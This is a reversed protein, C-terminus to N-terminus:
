RPGWPLWGADLLPKTEDEMSELWARIITREMGADIPKHPSGDPVIGDRAQFFHFRRSEIRNALRQPELRPVVIEVAGRDLAARYDPHARVADYAGPGDVLNMNLVLATAPPAFGARVDAGMLAPDDPATSFFYAAVLAVGADHMDGTLNPATRLLSVWSTDGGGMDALGGVRHKMVLGLFNRLWERTEGADTSPPQMVNEVFQALLRVGPDLAAIVVNGMQREFLQSAMWRAFNTKGTGGRGRLVWFPSYGVVPPIPRTRAERKVPALAPPMTIVSAVEPADMEARFLENLSLVPPKKTDQAM